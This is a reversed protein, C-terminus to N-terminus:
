VSRWGFPEMLPHALNFMIVNGVPVWTAWLGMPMGRERAPFWASIAAPAIIAILGSGAGEILRGAMLATASPSLAGVVAGTLTCGMAVTGTLKLGWRRLILATPIALVLGAVSFVSMAWGGAVMDLGLEAMLRQMVPPVKFQNVAAAISAFYVALMVAWAKKKHSM